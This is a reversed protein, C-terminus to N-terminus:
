VKKKDICAHFPINPTQIPPPVYTLSLHKFFHRLSHSFTYLLKIQYADCIHMKNPKTEKTRTRRKKLMKFFTFPQWISNAIVFGLKISTFVFVFVKSCISYFLTPFCQRHTEYKLPNRRFAFSGGECKLM